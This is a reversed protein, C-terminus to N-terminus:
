KGLDVRYLKVNKDKPSNSSFQYSANKDKIYGFNGTVHNYRVRSSANPSVSRKVANYTPGNAKNYTMSVRTVHGRDKKGDATVLLVGKNTRFEYYHESGNENYSYIPSSYKGLVSQMSEGLKVNELSQDGQTIQQVTQISNGTAAEVHNVNVGTVVLGSVLLSAMLKKM